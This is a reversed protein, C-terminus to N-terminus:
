HICSANSTFFVNNSWFNGSCTLSQDYLDDTGNARSSANSFVQAFGGFTSDVSIGYSRNGNTVNGYVRTGIGDVIAIGVQGNGNATNNNVTNSGGGLYIGGLPNGSADNGSFVCSECSLLYVGYGLGPEAGTGSIVNSAVTLFTSAPGASIGTGIPLTATINSIGLGFVGKITIQAIQSYDTGVIYIGSNVNGNV